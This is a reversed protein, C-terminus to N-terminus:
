GTASTWRPNMRATRRARGGVNERQRGERARSRVSRVAKSTEEWVHKLWGEAFDWVQKGFTVFTVIYAEIWLEETDKRSFSLVILVTGGIFSGLFGAVSLNKWGTSRFKYTHCIERFAPQEELLNRSPPLDYAIGRAINRATIQIRALSNAFLREAEVKWQEEALILSRGGILNSQAELAEGSTHKIANGTDSWVLSHALMAFVTRHKDDKWGRSALEQVSGCTTGDPDCYTTRDHCALATSFGNVNYFSGDSLQKEAPFIPDYSPAPYSIGTNAILILAVSSDNAADLDSIPQWRADSQFPGKSTGSFSFFNIILESSQVCPVNLM